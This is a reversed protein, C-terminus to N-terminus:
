STKEQLQIIRNLKIICVVFCFIISTIFILLHKATSILYQYQVQQQYKNNTNLIINLLNNPIINMFPTKKENTLVSNPNTTQGSAKQEHTLKTLKTQHGGPRNARNTLKPYINVYKINNYFIKTSQNITQSHDNKNNTIKPNHYKNTVYVYEYKHFIHKHKCEYNLFTADDNPYTQFYPPPLYTKKVCTNQMQNGKSLKTLSVISLM